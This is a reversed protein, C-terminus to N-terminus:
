IYALGWTHWTLCDHMHDVQGYPRAEGQMVERTMQGRAGSAQKWSRLVSYM